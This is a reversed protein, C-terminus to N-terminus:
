LFGRPRHDHLGIMRRASAGVGFVVVSRGVRLLLFPVTADEVERGAEEIGAM